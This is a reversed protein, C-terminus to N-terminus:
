RSSDGRIVSAYRHGAQEWTFESEIYRRASCSIEVRLSLSDFLRAIAAEYEAVTNARLARLPNDVILGELGRDSAVVPVGAAMAELTKNKIGYGTRMPIVCVTAPHLFDVMAPVAGTVTVGPITALAQVQPVPRAGVIALRTQPYRRRVAPLIEQALFTAADINALNDMAGILVLHQGGPDTQRVPFTSFDVGNAIVTLNAQPAFVQFQQRDDETTVVIEQFKRCFGQEYRKLLPLNLRDRGPKEATGTQLQQRCTGYVSSHINVVTRLHQRFDSRVYVENVSHECTLVEYKGSRVATDVWAQMEASHSAWVGAPRGTIVFQGLRAAKHVIGAAPTPPRDFLVLEAVQDRLAVIEADTVEPSRLSVLTVDHHYRLYKLLNFTRVQTGGKTPPYPFTASLMLINM